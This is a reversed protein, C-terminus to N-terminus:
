TIIYPEGVGTGPRVAAPPNYTAPLPDTCGIVMDSPCDVIFPVTLTTGDFLMNLNATNGNVTITGECNGPDTNDYPGVLLVVYKQVGTVTDVIRLLVASGEDSLNVKYQFTISNPGVSLPVIEVASGACASKPVVFPLLDDVDNLDGNYNTQQISTKYSNT